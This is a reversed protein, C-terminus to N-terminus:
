FMSFPFYMPLNVRYISSKVPLTLGVNKRGATVKNCIHLSGFFFYESLIISNKNNNDLKCYDACSDGVAPVVLERRIIALSQKANIRPRGGAIDLSM